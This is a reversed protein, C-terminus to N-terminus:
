TKHSGWMSAFLRSSALDEMELECGQLVHSPRLTELKEIDSMLWLSWHSAM